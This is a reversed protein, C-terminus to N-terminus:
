LLLIFSLVYLILSFSFHRYKRVGDLLLALTEWIKGVTEDVEGLKIPPFWETLLLDTLTAM